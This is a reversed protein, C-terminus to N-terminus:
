SKSNEAEPQINFPPLIHRRYKLCRNQGQHHSNQKATAALAAAAFLEVPFDRKCAGAPSLRVQL